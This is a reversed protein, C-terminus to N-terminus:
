WFTWPQASGLAEDPVLRERLVRALAGVGEGTRACVSVEAGDPVPGLDRRLGLRIVGPGVPRRWSAPMTPDACEIVLDAQAELAHASAQAERSEQPADKDEGATDIYRVVVGDLDILAGVHDLTTGSEDAVVSVTRGALANALTSKGINPPGVCVVLAPEILRRLAQDWPGAAAGPLAWREPQALLLDIARPSPARALTELMRAEIVSAAEPHLTRLDEDSPASMPEVGLSALERTLARLVAPGGHPMLHVLQDTWRMVVGRDVGLLMRVVARGVPPEGGLAPWLRAADGIIELIAIAGAAPPTALRLRPPKSTPTM